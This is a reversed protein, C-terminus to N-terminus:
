AGKELVFMERSERHYALLIQSEGEELSYWVWGDGLTPRSSAILTADAPTISSDALFETILRDFKEQTDAEPANWKGLLDGVDEEYTLKAYVFGRGGELHEASEKAFGAPLAAGWREGIGVSLPDESVQPATFRAVLIWIVFILILVGFGIGAWARPALKKM